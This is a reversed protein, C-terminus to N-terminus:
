NECQKNKYENAPHFAEILSVGVVKWSFVRNVLEVGANSLSERLGRNSLVIEISRVFEDPTDALMVNKQDQLDLGSCAFSTGIVPVGMALSDLIKLRTGGGDRIPCVFATAKQFYPRVDDVFGPVHIRRDKTSLHRLWSPPKRGVVHIEVNDLQSVLIPWIADFFYDMAESNPYMDLSGCFLLTRGGPDPRPTFYSTDVGNAVVKAKAEPAIDLLLARDEKSVTLNTDFRPCWKKEAERLKRAELKWYQKLLFNSEITVRRAILSSQVDHHNLVTRSSRVLHKYQALGLTDFHIVDFPVRALIRRFKEEMERSKLWHFEFPDNSGLGKLALWYRNDTSLSVWDVSSCFSLLAQVCDQPPIDETRTAPQDFALVHVECTKALERLLNYNRQLPGTKPPYALNHGLWLVKM